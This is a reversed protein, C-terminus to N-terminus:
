ADGARDAPAVTVQKLFGEGVSHSTVEPFERVAIHVLRREYPNMSHLQKAQGTRAVQSAVERALQVLEEERRDHFGECEVTLRAIKPWTRRAMRTLLFQFSAVLEGDKQVLLERDAGSLVVKVAEDTGEVRAELDFGALSLM